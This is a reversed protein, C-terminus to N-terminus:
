QREEAGAPRPDEQLLELVRSAAVDDTVLVDVFGARCAGLITPAKHWDGAIAVKTPIASLTPADITVMRRTLPTVVPEGRIDYYQACVDGVAGARRLDAVQDDTLLHSRLMSSREPETSGIGLLALGAHRCCEQMRQFRTDGRLSQSIAETDLLLPMPLTTYRGNFNHALRRALEPGDTDPETGGLVGLMQVVHVGNRPVPRLANILEWLALGWAIGITMGDEVMDEVTQAALAGLRRVMQGYGLTGRELVRVLRLGLQEQLQQELEHRRALPYNVRVEVVNREHAEALLRSIMSRSYGTQAAIDEQRLHEEYYMGAIRALLALREYDARKNQDSHRKTM